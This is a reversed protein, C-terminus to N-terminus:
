TSQKRCCYCCKNNITNDQADLVTKRVSVRLGHGRGKSIGWPWPGNQSKSQRDANWQLVWITRSQQKGIAVAMATTPECELQEIMLLLTLVTEILVMALVVSAILVMELVVDEGRKM